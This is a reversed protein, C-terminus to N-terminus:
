VMATGREMPQLGQHLIADFVHNGLTSLAHHNLDNSCGLLAANLQLDDVVPGSELQFRNWESM